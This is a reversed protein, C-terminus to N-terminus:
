LPPWCPICRSWNLVPECFMVDDNQITVSTDFLAHWRQCAHRQECSSSRRSLITYWLIGTQPLKSLERWGPGQRMHIHPRTTCNEVGSGRALRAVQAFRALEPISSKTRLRQLFSVNARFTVGPSLDLMWPAGPRGKPAWLANWLSGFAGWHVGLSLCIIYSWLWQHPPENNQRSLYRESVNTSM